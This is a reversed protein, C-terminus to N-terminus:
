GLIRNIVAEYYNRKNKSGLVTILLTFSGLAFHEISYVDQKLPQRLPGSFILAFCEDGDGRPKYDRPQTDDMRSLVLDVPNGEADRFTFNTTIYPYFSDWTLRALPDGDDTKIPPLSSVNALGLGKAPLIAGIALPTAALFKRRSVKM